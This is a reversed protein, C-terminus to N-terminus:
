LMNISGSGHAYATIPIITYVVYGDIDVSLSALVLCRRIISIKFNLLLHHICEPRVDREKAVKVRVRILMISSVSYHTIAIENEALIVPTKDLFM